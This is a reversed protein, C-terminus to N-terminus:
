SLEEVAFRIGWMLLPVGGATVGMDFEGYETWGTLVTQGDQEIADRVSWPGEEEIYPDIAEQMRRRKQQASGVLLALEWTRTVGGDETDLTRTQPGYVIICPPHIEGPDPWTGHVRLGNIASLRNVYSARTEAISSM